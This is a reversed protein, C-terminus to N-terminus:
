ELMGQVLGAQWIAPLGSKSHKIEVAETELIDCFCCCTEPLTRGQGLGPMYHKPTNCLSIFLISIAIYALSTAGPRAPRAMM